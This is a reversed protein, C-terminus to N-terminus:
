KRGLNGVEKYIMTVRIVIFVIIVIAITGSILTVSREVELFKLIISTLSTLVVLITYFFLSKILKKLQLEEKETLYENELDEPIIDVSEKIDNM